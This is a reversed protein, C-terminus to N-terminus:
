NDWPKRNIEYVKGDLVATYLVIVKKGEFLYPKNENKLYAIDGYFEIPRENKCTEAIEAVRGFTEVTKYRVTGPGALGQGEQGHLGGYDTTIVYEDTIIRYGITFEGMKWHGVVKEISRPIASTKVPNNPVPQENSCGILVILTLISISLAIYNKKM